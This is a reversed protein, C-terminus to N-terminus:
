IIERLKLLLCWVQNEKNEIKQGIIIPLLRLFCWNQVANGSLKELSEKVEAPKNQRDSGLYKFQCIRRNIYAITFYKEVKIFHKLILAVDYSVVGEFCDHALCPPLGSEYIHFSKLCHFVCDSKVGHISKSSDNDLLTLIESHWEKTRWDGVINPTNQFRQRDITCYRCMYTERSFNESLGAVMHSGLNDGLVALLGVKILSEDWLQVGQTELTKLDNMLQAFVKQQGFLKLNDETCLLVLQMQDVSFRSYPLLNALTFYVAQLKHKRKGSGLPNVVEFSDQYLLLRLASPNNKFFDNESFSKGDTIDTLIDKDPPTNHVEYYQNRM